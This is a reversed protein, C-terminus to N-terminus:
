KNSAHNKTLLDVCDVDSGLRSVEARYWLSPLRQLDMESTSAAKSSREISFCLNIKEQGADVDLETKQNPHKSLTVSLCLVSVRVKPKSGSLRGSSLTVKRRREQTNEWYHSDSRRPLSFLM